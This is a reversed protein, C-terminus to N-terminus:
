APRAALAHVVALYARGYEVTRRHLAARAESELEANIGASGNDWEKGLIAALAQADDPDFYVGMPPQQEVHVAISSLIVKKGISKAEEVSSSWGEFRSPNIVALSNRMLQLVEAYSILGLIRVNDELTNDRLFDTLRDLFETTKTRYDRLNGTCVVVIEKGQRKLINVAEFVVAHNKHHWFQNPLFFYRKEPLRYKDVLARHHAGDDDSLALTPQSVFQLVRAKDLLEPPMVQRFDKLADHSSLVVVDSQRVLNVLRATERASDLGPFLQPLHLYQFDPIWSILQYPLNRGTVHEAHSMLSIDYRKMLRNVLFLSGFIKFLIKHAFWAVSKRDLISTRVVTALPVFQRVIAEDVKTGFFVYPVVGANEVTSMAYLLNRIYNIGGSYEQPRDYWFGLKVM